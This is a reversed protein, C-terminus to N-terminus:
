IQHCPTTNEDLHLCEMIRQFLGWDMTQAVEVELMEETTEPQVWDDRQPDRRTGHDSDGLPFTRPDGGLPALGDERTGERDMSWYSWSEEYAGTTTLTYSERDRDCQQNM